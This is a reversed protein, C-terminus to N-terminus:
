FFLEEQVSKVIAQVYLDQNELINDLDKDFNIYGLELLYAELGINSNIYKNAGYDTNRGDVFANTCIGGLERIM